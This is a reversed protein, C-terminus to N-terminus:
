FPLGILLRTQTDDSDKNLGWVMGFSWWFKKRALSITPGLSYKTESYNGTSELGVKFKPNIEYSIGFAYKNEIEKKGNDKFEEEAIQNYALSFRGIDKALILKAELRAPDSLDAARLYELYILPNVLYQGKEGLRYRTRVKFKNYELTSGTGTNKQRFTQYLSIDWRNTIGYELEFQHEWNSNERNSRDPLKSTVYYEIEAEGEPMTMYEYTWVFSRRDAFSDLPLLLVAMLITLGMSLRKFM